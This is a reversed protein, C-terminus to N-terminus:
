LKFFLRENKERGPHPPITVEPYVQRTKATRRDACHRISKGKEATRVSLNGNRISFLVKQLQLSRRSAIKQYHVEIERGRARDRETCPVSPFSRGLLRFHVQPLQCLLPLLTQSSASYLWSRGCRVGPLILTCRTLGCM